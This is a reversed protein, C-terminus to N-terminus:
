IGKTQQWKLQAKELNMKAEALKLKLEESKAENELLTTELKKKDTQLQNQKSKLTQKLQSNDFSILRKGKKIIRGEPAMWTIKYRWMRKVQPPSIIINNASIIEGSAQINSILAVSKRSELDTTNDTCSYLSVM